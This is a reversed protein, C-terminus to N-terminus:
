ARGQPDRAGTHDGIRGARRSPEARHSCSPRRRGARAAGSETAARNTEEARRSRLSRSRRRAVRVAFVLVALFGPLGLGVAITLFTERRSVESRFRSELNAASAGYAGLLADDFADGHGLKEVLLAFRWKVDDQTLFDVFEAAQARALKALPTSTAVNKEVESLSLFHRRLTATFLAFGRSWNDQHAVNTAFGESLWRSPDGAAAEFLALHALEHRFSEDLDAPEAGPNGLSLVALKVTPYCAYTAGSQPSAAEPALTALEDPGRAIRVEVGDLLPRGLTVALEARLDDAHAILPGVRDRASPPYQFTIWGGDHSLFSAPVAPKRVRNSSAYVDYPDAHDQHEPTAAADGVGEAYVLDTPPPFIRLGGLALPSPPAFVHRVLKLAVLPVRTSLVVAFAEPGARPRVASASKRAFFRAAM